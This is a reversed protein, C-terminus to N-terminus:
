HFEGDIQGITALTATRALQGLKDGLDGLRQQLHVSQLGLAAPNFVGLEYLIPM